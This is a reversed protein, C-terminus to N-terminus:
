VILRSVLAAVKNRLALKNGSVSPAPRAVSAVPLSNAAGLPTSWPSSQLNRCAVPAAAQGQPGESRRHQATPDRLRSLRRTRAPSSDSDMKLHEVKAADAFYGASLSEKLLELARTAFQEVLPQAGRVDSATRRFAAPRWLTCVPRNYPGSGPV